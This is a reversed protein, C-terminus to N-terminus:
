AAREHPNRRRMIVIHREADLHPTTVARVEVCAGAATAMELEADDRRGKMAVIRGERSLLPAGLEYLRSLSTFARAVLTDFRASGDQQELRGHVCRVNGIGAVASAHRCFSMKRAVADLLTVHMDPRLCAIVVGPFGAGSGVDLCETGRVFPMVTASDLVHHTVMELPDRHATLNQKASWKALSRLYSLLRGQDTDSSALGLTDLGTKLRTSLTPDDFANDTM